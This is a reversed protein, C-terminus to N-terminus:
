HKLDFKILGSSECDELDYQSCVEGNPTKMISTHGLLNESMVVGCAHSSRGCVLGEIGLMTDLLGPYKEVQNIFETIPKWGEEENGHIVDHLSRNKGRDIPILSSLYLGIDSPLGYGRCATSCTNRSKETKYTAVRVIESGFSALYDSVRELVHDRKHSSLDLDIDM